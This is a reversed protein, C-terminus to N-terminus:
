RKAANTRCASSPSRKGLDTLLIVASGSPSFNRQWDNETSSASNTQTTARTGLADSWTALVIKPPTRLKAAGAVGKEFHEKYAVALTKQESVPLRRWSADAARDAERSTIRLNSTKTEAGKNNRNAEAAEGATMALWSQAKFRDPGEAANKAAIAYFDVAKEPQGLKRYSEGM